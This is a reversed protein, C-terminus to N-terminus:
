NAISSSAASCIAASLEGYNKRRPFSISLSSYPWSRNTRRRERQLGVDVQEVVVVEPARELRPACAFHLCCRRKEVGSAVIEWWDRFSRHAHEPSRSRRGLHRSRNLRPQYQTVGSTM